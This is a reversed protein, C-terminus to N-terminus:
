SLRRERCMRREGVGCRDPRQVTGADPWRRHRPGGDGGAAWWPGRRPPRSVDRLMSSCRACTSLAPVRRWGAATDPGDSLARAAAPTRRTVAVVAAGRSGRSKPPPPPSPAAAAPIGATPPVPSRDARRVAPRHRMGKRSAPGGGDEAAGAEAPCGGDTPRDIGYRTNVGAPHTRAVRHLRRSIWIWGCRPRGRVARTRGRRRAARGSCARRGTRRRARRARFAQTM